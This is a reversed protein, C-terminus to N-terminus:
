RVLDEVSFASGRWINDSESEAGTSDDVDVSKRFASSSNVKNLSKEFDSLRSKQAELSQNISGFREDMKAVETKFLEKTEGIAKELETIKENTETRTNKLIEEISTKLGDIKKSIEEQEDHVEEVEAPAETTVEEVEEVDDTRAPTPVETPDGAQHGTEVTEDTSDADVSKILRSFRGKAMEVGGEADAALHKTVINKVKEVTGEGAEIFAVNKMDASCVPCEYSDNSKAFGIGDEECCFVNLVNSDAAMGTIETVSGDASKHITFVNKEVRVVDALPNAPNDVLSLETLDYDTVKNIKEGSKSFTEESSIVSGGISFGSLTGDLVKLWTDQAGESVRATVFIGRYTNGDAAIFEDEKFSVMKGVASDKKHMERINGRARAFAKASAEATVIDGQTDENDLTAWGSVLRKAKNIGNKSFEVGLHINNGENAWNAKNM